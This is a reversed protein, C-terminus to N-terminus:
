AAKPRLRDLTAQVQKDKNNGRTSGTKLYRDIQEMALLHDEFASQQTQIRDLSDQMREFSDSHRNSQQALKGVAQQAHQTTQAMALQARNHELKIATMKLTKLLRQEYAELQKCQETQQLVMAEQAVLNEALASAQQEEQQALHERIVEEQEALRQQSQALQRQLKLKNAMVQALHQKAQRLNAECEYIEQGLIRLANADVASELVERTGGRLATALKDLLYFM